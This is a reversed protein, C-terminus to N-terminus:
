ELLNSCEPPPPPYITFLKPRSTQAGMGDFKMAFTHIHGSFGQSMNDHNAACDAVHKFSSIANKDM